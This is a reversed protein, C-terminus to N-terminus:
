KRFIVGNEALHLGIGWGQDAVIEIASTPQRMANEFIRALIYTSNCYRSHAKRKKQCARTDNKCAWEVMAVRPRAAGLLASM